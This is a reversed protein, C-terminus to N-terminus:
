PCDGHQAPRHARLVIRSRLALAQAPTGRHAYRELTVREEPTLVIAVTPRGTRM